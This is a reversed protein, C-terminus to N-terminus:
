LVQITLLSKLGELCGDFANAELLPSTRPQKVLEVIIYYACSQRLVHLCACRVAHASSSSHLLVSSLTSSQQMLLGAAVDKHTIVQKWKGGDEQDDGSMAPVM